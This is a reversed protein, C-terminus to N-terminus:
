RAPTPLGPASAAALPPPAPEPQAAAPAAASAAATAAVATAAAAAAPVTVDSAPSLTPAPAPLAASMAPASAAEGAPIAALPTGAAPLGAVPLVAVGTVPLVTVGAVPLVAVGAVPLVAVGVESSVGPSVVATSAAPGAVAPAIGIGQGVAAVKLQEARQTAHMCADIMRQGIKTNMLMSKAPIQLWVIGADPDELRVAGTSTERPLMRYQKRLYTVNFYGPLGEVPTVNVRQNFECDADGVLVRAAVDMQGASIAEVTRVALAQSVAQNKLGSRASPAKPAGKAALAPQAPKASKAAVPKAPPSAAGAQPTFLLAALCCLWTSLLPTRASPM